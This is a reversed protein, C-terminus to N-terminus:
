KTINKRKSWSYEMAGIARWFRRYIYRFPPISGGGYLGTRKLIKLKNKWGVVFNAHVIYAESPRYEGWIYGNPFLLQDLSHVSVDHGNELCSNLAVQDNAAGEEILAVSSEFLKVIKPTPRALFFGACLPGTMDHLRPSDNQIILEADINELYPIPDRRAVIDADVHLVTDGNRLRALVQEFKQLMVIRFEPTGYCNYNRDITESGTELSCIEVDRHFAQFSAATNAAMDLM